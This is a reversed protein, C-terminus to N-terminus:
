VLSINLIPRPQLRSIRFSDLNEIILSGVELLIYKNDHQNVDETKRDVKEINQRREEYLGFVLLRESSNM